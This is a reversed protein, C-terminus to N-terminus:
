PGGAGSKVIGFVQFVGRTINVGGASWQVGRLQGVGAAGSQVGGSMWRFMGTGQSSGDWWTFKNRDATWPMAMYGRGHWLTPANANNSYGLAIGSAGSAGSGSGTGTSNGFNSAWTYNSTTDWTAGDWSYNLWMQATAAFQVDYVVFLIEDYTNDFTHFFGVSAVPSGPQVVQQSLLILTGPAAVGVAQLDATTLVVNGARGNWTAVGGANAIANMVFATTALQTTNTASPATPATPTGTFAPSALVAGGAASIDASTLTVVGTRGNFSAVSNTTVFQCTALQTTNTGPAATPASPVGSFAPSTLLAGGVGTVDGPQLTVFGSRGNWTLVGASLASLEDLVWDCTAIQNVSTGAVPTPATPTGTFSPDNLLAGGAATLDASTLTVAGTRGNFSAVGTTSETVANMVFATTAIQGSASGPAATPAQPYGTFVPSNLPAYIQANQGVEDLIKQELTSLGEDVFATTAIRNSVDAFPPTNAQPMAGPQTAACTIDAATLYITGVRGNFSFVLPTTYYWGNLADCIAQNVFGVTALPDTGDLGLAAYIGASTPQPPHKKLYGLTAVEDDRAPFRGVNIQEKVRMQGDYGVQLLPFWEFVPDDKNGVVSIAFSLQNPAFSWQGAVGNQMLRQLGDSGLYWNFGQRAGALTTLYSSVFGVNPIGIHAGPRDFGISWGATNNSLSALIGRATASRFPGGIGGEQFVFIDTDFALQPKLPYQSIQRVNVTFDDM